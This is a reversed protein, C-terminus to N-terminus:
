SVAEALADVLRDLDAKTYVETVCFLACQGLEPFESVLDRGGFIKDRLLADNIGAV